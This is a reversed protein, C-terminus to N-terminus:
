EQMVAKVQAAKLGADYLRVEDLDGNIFGTSYGGVFNLSAGITLAETLSVLPVSVNPFSGALDGNVYLRLDTGDYVGALFTWTATPLNATGSAVHNGMKVQPKGNFLSLGFSTTDHNGGRDLLTVGGSAPVTTMRVWVTMTIAKSVWPRNLSTSNPVLVWNQSTVGDLRLAGNSTGKRDAIFVVASSIPPANVEGGTVVNGTNSGTSDLITSATSQKEFKWTSVPAPPPILTCAFGTGTFGDACTCIRSGVTNSCTANPDCGDDASNCENVDNCTVGDGSFGSKCACTRTTASTKTCTANTSCGGNNLCPDVPAGGGAVGTTGGSSTGGSSPVGGASTTGGAATSGGSNGKGGSNAKGGASAGGGDNTGGSHAAGGSSSDDRGGSNTMGGNPAGNGSTGGYSGANGAGGIPTNSGSGGSMQANGSSSGGQARGGSGGGSNAGGKGEGFVRDPSSCGAAVGFLAILPGCMRVSKATRRMVMERPRPGLVSKM